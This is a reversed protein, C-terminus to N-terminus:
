DWPSFMKSQETSIQKLFVIIIIKFFLVKLASIM